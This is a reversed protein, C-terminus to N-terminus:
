LQARDIFLKAKDMVAVPLDARIKNGTILQLDSSAWRQVHCM